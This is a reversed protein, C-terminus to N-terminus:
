GPLQIERRTGLGAENNLYFVREPVFAFLRSRFRDLFRSLDVPADTFFNRVTPFKTIYDAFAGVAEPGVDVQELSGDMQLGEIRRWDDSDRFIAGACRGSALASTVHRSTASSFLYFRGNRYVYYVPAPWPDPDATALVLTRQCQVLRLALHDTAETMRSLKGPAALRSAWNGPM